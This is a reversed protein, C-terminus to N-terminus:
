QDVINTIVIIIIGTAGSGSYGIDALYGKLPPAGWEQTKDLDDNM